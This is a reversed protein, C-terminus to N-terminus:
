RKLGKKKKKKGTALDRYLTQEHRPNSRTKKHFVIKIEKKKKEKQNEDDFIEM